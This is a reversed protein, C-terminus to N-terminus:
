SNEPAIPVFVLEMPTRADWFTYFVEAAIHQRNGHSDWGSYYTREGEIPMRNIDDDEFVQACSWATLLTFETAGPALRYTAYGTSYIRSGTSVYLTGDAALSGGHRWDGLYDLQVAADGDLTYIAYLTPTSDCGGQQLLLLEPIGDNNIDTVMYGYSQANFSRAREYWADLRPWYAEPVDSYYGPAIIPPPPAETTTYALWWPGTANPDPADLLELAPSQGCAFLLGVGLMLVIAVCRKVRTV